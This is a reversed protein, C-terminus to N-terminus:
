KRSWVPPYILKLGQDKCLQNIEEKLEIVRGERDVMAENFAQLEATKTQIADHALKRATIDQVIGLMNLAKGTEDRVTSGRESMWHTSGDPWVVRHEINYDVGQEINATIAEQVMARDDPHIANIFSQFSSELKGEAYGFLPAIQRSWHLEGTVINWDWAGIEAFNLAHQFREESERLKQEAMLRESIDHVYAIIHSQEEHQLMNVSIEVPIKEGNKNLVASEFRISKNETFQNVFDPWNEVTLNSDINYVHMGGTLETATYGLLHSARHNVSLLLGSEPEIIFISDDASVIAAQALYLAQQEQKRRTIDINSGYVKFPKGSEDKLIRYDMLLDVIEGDRNLARYETREQEKETANLAQQLRDQLVSIDEPHCFEQLFRNWSMRYGGEKKATTKLLSFFLDSFTFIRSQLDFEWNSMGAVDAAMTLQIERNRVEEEASKRQQVENALRRNWYLIIIVVLLFVGLLQWLLTYDIARDFKISMWRNFITQREQESITDLAKQLINRLEPWDDRVAMAQKNSYPTDGALHLHSMQLKSSYYTTTVLNGVFAYVTGKDVLGLADPINTVPVLNIESHNKGIWNHVAYAEVVAVRKGSLNDLNGIYSVDDHAFIHVPMSIYPETFLAYQEREPTVSVSAFFDLSKSKVGEVAQSWSLGKTIEIRVDLLQELRKLYDLSIGQYHGESDQYEVPAWDPDLAVRLVPHADLWALEKKTFGPQKQYSSYYFQKDITTTESWGMRAYIEAIKQYRSSKYSGLEVFRPVIVKATERAEFELHARSFKQSNYKELILNVIEEPHELAYNWGKLTARRIQKVRLPHDKLEQETTFLNDGYFDIGFDRPDIINVPIKRQKFWFPQDTSYAAFADLKDELLDQHRFSMEISSLKDFGGLTDLLMADLPAYRHGKVDVTVRKGALDYPTRIGSKKLALFILPSHQFIQALLVVPQGQMRPLLLGTDAVGYQARGELVDDINSTTPDRERLEVDLGEEAYFGKELAAYYGAFQFQHFWKLQISVKEQAHLPIHFLLLLVCLCLSACSGGQKEHKLTKTLANDM